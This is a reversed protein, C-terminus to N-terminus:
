RHAIRLREALHDQCRLFLSEKFSQSPGTFVPGNQNVLGDHGLAGIPCGNLITTM